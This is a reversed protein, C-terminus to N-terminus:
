CTHENCDDSNTEKLLELAAKVKLPKSFLYGQMLDCDNDILYQQQKSTEVGEAVVRLGIKHAMSIIDATILDSHHKSDIRNIFSRDIKLAHVNLEQLKYFSSSGTGFDDLAIEIMQDSLSKLKANIGEFDLFLISETIELELESAKAGTEKVIKMVTEVYNDQLIEIGSVNVAVRIGNYGLLNLNRIFQCAERLILKGLPIILQKREAVAIFEVPSIQGLEPDFMRALAEFGIIQDRKMDKQPQYELYLPSAGQDNLATRIVKEILEERQLVKEMEKNFFVYNKQSSASLDNLSISVEKIIQGVDTYNSNIEVIGMQIEIYQKTTQIDMPLSMKDSVSEALAVLAGSDEYAKVYLVFRDATFRFLKINENEFDYLVEALKKLVADGYEYGKTMNIIKFNSCNFLMLAKAQSDRYELEKKMFENLFQKNPLGTLSDFYALQILNNNKKYMAFVIYILFVYVIALAIMVFTSVQRVIANTESLSYRIALASIGEAKIGAPVPVFVVFSEDNKLTSDIYSYERDSAISEKILPDAVIMGIRQPDSSGSVVFAENIFCIRTADKEEKMDSLLSEQKFSYLFKQIKDASVGFQVLSGDSYKLYGYKYYNGTIVDQRIDEVLFEADSKLFEDIPHGEYVKWGIVEELNSYLLEGQPNYYDLEDVELIEALKAYLENSQQGEYLKMSQSAVRLKEELLHTVIEEAEESKSISKAYSRAIKLAETKRIEYYHEKIFDTMYSYSVFFIVMIVLLPLIFTRVEIAKFKKNFKRNLKLDM